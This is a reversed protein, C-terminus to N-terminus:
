LGSGSGSGSAYTWRQRSAWAFALLWVVRSVRKDWNEGMEGMKGWFNGTCGAGSDEGGEVM